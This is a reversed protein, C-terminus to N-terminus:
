TIRLIRKSLSDISRDIERAGACVLLAFKHRARLLDTPPSQELCRAQVNAFLTAGKAAAGAAGAQASAPRRGREGRRRSAEQARSANLKNMRELAQAAEGNALLWLAAANLDANSQALALECSCRGGRSLFMFACLLSGPVAPPSPTPARQPM